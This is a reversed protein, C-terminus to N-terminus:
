HQESHSEGHHATIAIAAFVLTLGSFILAQIFGVLLELGYVGVTAIFPVLFASVLVLIEGATMNGFLRFTFSILRVLESFAELPGVFFFDLLGQFADLFRMQFLAKLGEKLSGIRIFKTIYSLGLMKLGLWEVFIFSVLALALPMNIDTGAPRLLHIQIADGAKFGLSPYIPLLGIWANVVVFLFITAIVPFILRSHQRGVVAEVFNLLGEIAIEVFNQFRGPVLAAKRAGLVFLLVLVISAIFSSLITNTIIFNSGQYPGEEVLEEQDHTLSAEGYKKEAKEAELFDRYHDRDSTPFVVQAPLHVEPKPIFPGEATEGAAKAEESQTLGAGIAGTILGAIALAMVIILGLAIYKGTGSGM